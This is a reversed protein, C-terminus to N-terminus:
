APAAESSDDAADITPEDRPRDAVSTLGRAPEETAPEVGETM